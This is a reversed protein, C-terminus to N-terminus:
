HLSRSKSSGCCVKHPDIFHVQSLTTGHHPSLISEGHWAHWTYNAWKNILSPVYIRGEVLSLPTKRLNSPSGSTMTCSESWKCPSILARAKGISRTLYIQPPPPRRLYIQRLYVSILHGTYITMLWILESQPLTEDLIGLSAQAWTLTLQPLIFSWLQPWALETQAWTHLEFCSFSTIGRFKIM